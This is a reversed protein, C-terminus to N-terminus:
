LWQLGGMNALMQGLLGALAAITIVAAQHDFAVDEPMQWALKIM